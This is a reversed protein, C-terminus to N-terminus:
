KSEAGEFLDLQTNQQLPTIEVAKALIFGDSMEVNIKQGKRIEKISSIKTKDVTRRIKVFGQKLINVPNSVDLRNILLETLNKNLVLKDQNRRALLAVLADIKNKNRQIIPAPSSQHIRINNEHILQKDNYIQSKINKELRFMVEDVKLNYNKIINEPDALQSELLAVKKRISEIHTRINYQLRHLSQFVSENLDDLNPVALEAAGTPTPARLDSVFDCITFDTQHGVASIVPTECNFVARAIAEDNFVSLEEFSGGGRAIIIVDCDSGDLYKIGRAIQKAANDGQILSPYILVKSRDFKRNLTKLIDRIVAGTPSTVVGIRHPLYPIKKKHAPDFLGESELQAKLQEYAAKAAGIGVPEAYYADFQAQGRREYVRLSGRFIYEQGKELRFKLSSAANRFMIASISSSQDKIQFYAHGSSAITLDSIEGQVFMNQFHQRFHKGMMSCLETVTLISSNESTDIFNLKM